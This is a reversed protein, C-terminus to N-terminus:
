GRDIDSSPVPVAQPEPATPATEESHSKAQEQLSWWVMVAMGVMIVVCVLCLWGAKRDFEEPDNDRAKKITHPNPFWFDFM